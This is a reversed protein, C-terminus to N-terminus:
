NAVASRETADASVEDLALAQLVLARQQRRHKHLYGVAPAAYYRRGAYSLRHHPGICGKLHRLSQMYYWAGQNRPEEQAWVIDLANPYRALVRNLEDAPFPYQQEIRIIAVNELHEDRRKEM